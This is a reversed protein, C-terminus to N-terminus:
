SVQVQRNQHTVESNNQNPTPTFDFSADMQETSTERAPTSGRRGETESQFEEEDDEETNLSPLSMQIFRGNM